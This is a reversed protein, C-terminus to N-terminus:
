VHDCTVKLFARHHSQILSDLKTVDAMTFEYRLVMELVRVHAVWSKWFTTAKAEDSLLPSLLAVSRVPSCCHTVSPPKLAPNTEACAPM